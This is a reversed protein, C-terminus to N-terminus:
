KKKSEEREKIMDERATKRAQARQWLAYMYRQFEERTLGYTGKRNKVYVAMIFVENIINPEPQEGRKWSKIIGCILYFTM